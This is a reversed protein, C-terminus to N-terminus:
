KTRVSVSRGAGRATGIDLVALVRRQQELRASDLLDGGAAAGHVRSRTSARSSCRTWRRCIGSTVSHSSRPRAAARQDGGLDARDKTIQPDREVAASSVTRATQCRGHDLGM